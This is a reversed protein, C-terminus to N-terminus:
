DRAMSNARNTSPQAPTLEWSAHIMSRSLLSYHEPKMRSRVRRLAGDRRPEDHARSFGM